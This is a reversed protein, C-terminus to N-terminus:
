FRFNVNLGITTADGDVDDIGDFDDFDHYLAEAGLTISDTLFVEYGAGLFYGDADGVDDTGAEAYGGALYYLNRGGDYGIRAGIRLVDELEIDSDDLDVSGTDYHLFGGVVTRGLDYDYGARFGILGGDGDLEAAGDTEVDVYNGQLGVYFGTWDYVPAPPAAVAPPTPAPAPEINGAFAPLAMVPLLAAATLLRTM